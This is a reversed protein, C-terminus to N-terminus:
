SASHNQFNPTDGWGPHKTGPHYPPYRGTTVDASTREPGSTATARLTYGGAYMTQSGRGMPPPPTTNPGLSRPGSVAADYFASSATEVSDPALYYAAPPYGQSAVPMVSQGPYSASYASYAPDQSYGQSLALTQGQRTIPLQQRTDQWPEMRPEQDRYGRTTGRDLYDDMSTDMGYGVYGSKPVDPQGQWQRDDFTASSGFSMGRQGLQQRRQAQEAEFSKSDQKLTTIM